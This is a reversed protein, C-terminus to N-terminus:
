FIVDEVLRVVIAADADDVHRTLEDAVQGLLPALDRDELRVVRGPEGGVGGEHHIRHRPLPVDEEGVEVRSEPGGLELLTGGRGGSTATFSSNPPGGALDRRRAGSNM